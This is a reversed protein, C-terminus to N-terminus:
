LGKAPETVDDLRTRLLKARAAPIEYAWRAVKGNIASSEAAVAGTGSAAVAVWDAGDHRFLRMRIAIGDFTAFEARAIENEPLEIAALPKVDDFVLGAAAGALDSLDADARLRRGEPLEAFAFSAEPSDRRIALTAGDAATLNLVAVRAPPLDIIGRDLWGLLDGPVEFSGRALSAHEAGPIRVYVLDAGGGAAAVPVTAIIAEAVTEGTRSRLVIQTPAGTATDDLGMTASSGTDPADPQVLTLGALAVFLRRFRAPDAPYNDKEVVVWRGAVNAFDVKAAGHSVRVWALEDLRDALGAFVLKPPPSPAPGRGFVMFGIIGAVILAVCASLLFYFGRRQMM